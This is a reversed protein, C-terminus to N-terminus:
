TPLPARFSYDCRVCLGLLALEVSDLVADAYTRTSADALTFVLDGSTPLDGFHDHTFQEALAVSSFARTVSFVIPAAERNGRAAFAKQAARVGPQEQNLQRGSVRLGEVGAIASDTLQESGYSVSIM